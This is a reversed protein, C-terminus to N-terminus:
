MFGAPNGCVSGSRSLPAPRPVLQRSKMAKHELPQDTAPSAEGPQDMALSAEPPQGMAQKAEPPQDRM